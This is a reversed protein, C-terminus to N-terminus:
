LGFRGKTVNYNQTIESQTLERNYLLCNSINGKFPIVWGSSVLVQGIGVRNNTANYSMSNYPNSRDLVGNVYSKMTTGDYSITIQYWTNKNIIITGRVDAYTGVGSGANDGIVFRTVGGLLSVFFGSVLPEYYSGFIAQQGGGGDTNYIWSIQTFVSPRLISNNGGDIGDDSGDFVISGGNSSSYTPGNLLTGNYGNPGVDYWTTGTTPYSPTFGADM